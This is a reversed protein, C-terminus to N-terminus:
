GCALLQWLMTRSVCVGNYLTATKLERMLTAWGWDNSADAAVAETACRYGFRRHIFDDHGEYGGRWYGTSPDIIEDIYSPVNHGSQPHDFWHSVLRGFGGQTAWGPVYNGLLVHGHDSRNRRALWTWNVM